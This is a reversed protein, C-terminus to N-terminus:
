QEASRSRALAIERQQRKDGPDDAKDYGTLSLVVKTGYAHCFVGLLVKERKGAQRSPSTGTFMRETEAATHRIGFEFFGEGLHKGWETKCVDIGRHSLVHELGSVLAALELDSLESDMREEVPSRGVDDEFFEIIFEGTSM